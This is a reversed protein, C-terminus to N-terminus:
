SKHFTIVSWSGNQEVRKLQMTKLGMKLLENKISSFVIFLFPVQKYIRMDSAIKQVQIPSYMSVSNLVLVTLDEGSNIKKFVSEDLKKYLFPNSGAKFDDLYLKKGGKLTEEYSYKGMYEAFNGKNISIVKYPAFDFYKEFRDKGYYLIVITDGSHLGANELLNAALRHGETRAMKPASNAGIFIYFMNLFCFVFILVKRLRERNIQLLGFGLLLILIPYIEISYKTIFVLKGFIAAIFLVALTSFCVGFLGLVLRNKSKIAEYFGFVAISIPILEFVFFKVGFNYFFNDPANVLNTLIPSFYDSLLFLIRSFSFHGWWQSFSKTLFIKLMLPLALLIVLGVCAWLKILRNRFKESQGSLNFSLFILNAFVFVFGITHTFVVLFNVAVFLLIHKLCPEKLVKVTIILLLASLLFLLQYIRVEQSYYILFSSIACLAACLVGLRQDKFTKGAYFMVPIAVVGALVSTLRLLLDSQGFFHMFFKLYLYYFPMHCQNLVASFFDKGLPIRAIMWSVYEDNWLGEPRDILLLRLLSGIVTLFFVIWFTKNKFFTM